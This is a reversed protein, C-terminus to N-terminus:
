VEDQTNVVHHLSRTVRLTGQRSLSTAESSRLGLASLELSWLCSCDPLIGRVAPCLPHNLNKRKGWQWLSEAESTLSLFCCLQWMVPSECQGTIVHLLFNWISLKTGAVAACTRFWVCWWCCQGAQSTIGEKVRQWRAEKSSMLVLVMALSANFCWPGGPYLKGGGEWAYKLM